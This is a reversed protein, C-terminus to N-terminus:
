SFNFEDFDYAASIKSKTRKKSFTKTPKNIVASGRYSFGGVFPLLSTLTSRKEPQSLEMMNDDLGLLSDGESHHATATPVTVSTGLLSDYRDSTSRHDVANAETSNADLWDYNCKVVPTRDKKPTVRSPKRNVGATPAATIPKIRNAEKQRKSRRPSTSTDTMDLQDRKRSAKMTSPKAESGKHTQHIRKTNPTKDNVVRNHSSNITRSTINVLAQNPSHGYAKRKSEKSTSTISSKMTPKPENSSANAVVKVKSISGSSFTAILARSQEPPGGGSEPSNDVLKQLESKLTPSPSKDLLIDNDLKMESEVDRRSHGSSPVPLKNKAYNNKLPTAKRSFPTTWTSMSSRPVPTLSSTINSDEVHECPTYDKSLGLRPNSSDTAKRNDMNSKMPTVDSHCQAATFFECALPENGLTDHRIIPSNVRACADTDDLTDNRISGSTSNVSGITTGGVSGITTGGFSGLHTSEAVALANQSDSGVGGVIFANNVGCIWQQFDSKATDVMGVITQLLHQRTETEILSRIVSPLQVKAQEHVQLVIADVARCSEQRLENMSTNVLTRITMEHDHASSAMNTSYTDMSTQLTGHKIEMLQQLAELKAYEEQIERRARKNMDHFEQKSKELQELQYKLERTAILVEDTKDTHGRHSINTDNFIDDNNRVSNTENREAPTELLPNSANESNRVVTPEAAETRLINSRDDDAAVSSPMVTLSTSCPKTTSNMNLNVNQGEVSPAAHMQAVNPFQNPVASSSALSSQGLMPTPSYASTRRMSSLLPAGVNSGIASQVRGKRFPTLAVLSSSTRVAMSRMSRLAQSPNSLSALTGSIAGMTRIATGRSSYRNGHERLNPINSLCCPTRLQSAQHQPQQKPNPTHSFKPLRQSMVGDGAVSLLPQSSLISHNDEGDDRSVQRVSHESERSTTRKVSSMGPQSSSPRSGGNSSSRHYQSLLTQSSKLSNADVNDHFHSQQQKQQRSPASSNFHRDHVQDNLVVREKGRSSSSVGGNGHIGASRNSNSNARHAPAISRGGALSSSRHSRISRVSPGDSLQSLTVQSFNRDERQSQAHISGDIPFNEDDDDAEDDDNYGQFIEDGYFGPQRNQSQQHQHQRHPQKTQSFRAIGGGGGGVGSNQDRRQVGRSDDVANDGRSQHHNRTSSRQQQGGFTGPRPNLIARAYFSM